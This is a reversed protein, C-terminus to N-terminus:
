FVLAGPKSSASSISQSLFGIANKLEKKDGNDVYLKQIGMEKQAHEFISPEGIGCLISIFTGISSEDKMMFDILNKVEGASGSASANDAGDTIVFFITKTLIGASLAKQQQSIANKLFELCADYLRTSAGQPDFNPSVVNLVPQFGTIVEIDSDFRGLSFFIKPAHHWGQCTKVIFDIEENLTKENNKMSGSTDILIVVNVTEELDLNSPDYNMFKLNTGLNQLSPQSVKDDATTSNM